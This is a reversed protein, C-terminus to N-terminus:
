VQSKVAYPKPMTASYPSSDTSSGAKPWSKMEPMQVRQPKDSLLLLSFLPLVPLLLLLPFLLVLLLVPFVPLLLLVTVGGLSFLLLLVPPTIGAVGIFFTDNDTAFTFFPIWSVM